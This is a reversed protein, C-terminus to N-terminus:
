AAIWFDVGETRGAAILHARIKEGAGRASVYAVIVADQPPPLNAPAVVRRGQIKRGIKRPDVDIFGCAPAYASELYAAAARALRGAGWIWLARGPTARRIANALYPAKTRHFAERSYRPDTRSLRTPPDHWQHLPANVKGITVGRDVWRLIMEFDEPFDGQLAGGHLDWTERRFMLTPNPVPLDVFRALRIAEPTIQRNAWDVYCAYGRATARDGAFTALCSVAGWDANEVLARTQGALRDPHSVDDADMRAILPATALEVGRSFAGAVGQHSQARCFIRSDGAAVGRAIEATDDTSGDDIVILEWEALSQRRISDLAREIWAGANRAPLVISVAPSM